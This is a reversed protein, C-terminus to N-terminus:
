QFDTAQISCTMIHYSNDPSLNTEGIVPRVTEKAIYFDRKLFFNSIKQFGARWFSFM